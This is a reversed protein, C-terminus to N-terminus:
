ANGHDLDEMEIPATRPRCTRGPGADMFACRDPVVFYRRACVSFLRSESYFHAPWTRAGRPAQLLTNVRDLLPTTPLCDDFHARVGALYLQTLTEHYGQNDDNVGGVSVNYSRIIGPLSRELDIDPRCAVLWCTAALHGEHTWDARPLTRALLGTGLSIVAEVDSFLRPPYHNPTM